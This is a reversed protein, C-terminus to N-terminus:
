VKGERLTREIEEIEDLSEAHELRQMLEKKENESLKRGVSTLQKDAGQVPKEEAKAQKGLYSLAVETLEEHSEGFLAKASTREADKVKRFDLVKLSPILWIIYERYHQTKCIPNGILALNELVSLKQGAKLPIKSFNNNILSLSRLNNEEPFNDDIYAVNNNALLLVELNTFNGPVNALEIIDNNTLDIVTYKDQTIGLNEIYPIQLNRLQLTLQGEPNLVTPAKTIVQPTLRM